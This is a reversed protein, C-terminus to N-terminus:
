FEEDLLRLVEPDNREYLANKVAENELALAPDIFRSQCQANFENSTM